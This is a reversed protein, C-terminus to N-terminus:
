SSSSITNISQYSVSIITIEKDDYDCVSIPRRLYLGEIEINIFQGPATIYKTEGYLVMKYVDKAIKVNEEIIYKGKKYM